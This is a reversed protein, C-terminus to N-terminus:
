LSTPHPAHAFHPFKGNQLHTGEGGSLVNMQVHLVPQVKLLRGWFGRIYEEGINMIQRSAHSKNFSLGAANRPIIKPKSGQTGTQKFGLWNLCFGCMYHSKWANYHHNFVQYEYWLNTNVVEQKKCARFRTMFQRNKVLWTSRIAEYVTHMLKNTEHILQKHNTIIIESRRCSAHLHRIHNWVGM